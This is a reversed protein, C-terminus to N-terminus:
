RAAAAVFGAARETVQRWDGAALAAAPVLEGGAGVAVAGADLWTQLNDRSVGGTPMFPIDPFPGRLAKLYAPGGLSGPFLKVVDSLRRAAMVESPTLAGVMTLLGSDAM